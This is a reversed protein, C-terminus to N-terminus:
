SWAAPVDIGLNRGHIVGWAAAHSTDSGTVAVLFPVRDVALLVGAGRATVTGTRPVDALLAVEGFFDGRAAVRIHTGDMEVDFAGEAVAYFRDGVEGQRIVVQGDHAPLLTATRAVAELALPSVSAFMPLDRLLSMEVVPLDAHADARWVPRVSVLLVLALAGALGLLALREGGTAVLAQALGSGVLLGLGGVLETLSFVSGLLRPDVSRQLLMRGMRDVLAAGLGVVPLVVVAVAPTTFAAFVGCLVAPVALGAVLWPGLRERRVAFTAVVAALVAGIGVLVNLLGTGSRGLDLAGYALVVLLIDLAGLIVYRALVVALVGVAWPRARTARLGAALGRGTAATIEASTAPPGIHRDIMSLALATVAAAACGALVAGPGGATLLLTALVPGLLASASEGYGIWLNGTTLEGTSRVVAPLLMAGTPRLTSVAGLAVVAAAVLVVSQGTVAGLAAAGYGAAQVALGIRRVRGCPHDSTASAAVPAGLLTAGLLALSAVGAFRAGGQEYAAVLVAVIAGYEAVVACTHAAVLRLVAGNRSM